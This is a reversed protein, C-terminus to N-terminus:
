KIFVGYGKLEPENAGTTALNFTLKLTGSSLASMDITENFAQASLTTTGDSIDVTLTTDAPLTRDAYITIFEETGALTLTNADCVVVASTLEFYETYEFAQQSVTYVLDQSSYSFLSGSFSSNINSRNFTSSGSIQTYKIRYNTSSQLLQSYDSRIFTVDTAATSSLVIQKSAYTTLGDSSQISVEWTTSSTNVQRIRVASFYGETLSTVTIFHDTDASGATQSNTSTETNGTPGTLKYVDTTSDYIATTTGTNVTDNTGDADVFEDTVLFDKNEFVNNAQLTQYANQAIGTYGNDTQKNMKASTVFEEFAFFDGAM